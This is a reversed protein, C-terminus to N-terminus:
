TPDADKPPDLPPMERRLAARRPPTGAHEGDRPPCGARSPHAMTTSDTTRKLGSASCAMPSGQQHDRRDDHDAFQSGDHHRAQDTIGTEIEKANTKAVM